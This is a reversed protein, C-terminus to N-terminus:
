LTALFAAIAAGFRPIDVLFADHGQPSDLAVFDVQAGAARLGDAIEEQQSLPFLIDTSVGIVLAREVDIRKLATAVNGHGPEAGSYESVDFWDSARSLYLYCNPDFSRVFRRAHGALYSEVQFEVGFPDDDPRAEADLRIRAFRGVWEMASRYTIVGLKRAISMGAEPYHTDDYNGDNWNHDLRIAERQLSRIAIAFPQAQPATSISVHARVSGPHNVLWGLASMGGMSNGILCALREVGLHRVLAQSANAIDELALEPFTLKYVKGTAPDVSAPGTSGKCSGLSNACVVFWRNTDISKGPGLMDEWWGPTPDAANAAAHAGPSLGTLIFIANDRSANLSGWTEYALRAGVLAGGRKMAFPSPLEFYQRADPM